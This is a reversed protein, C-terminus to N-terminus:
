CAEDPPAYELTASPVDQRSGKWSNHPRCAMRLKEDWGPEDMNIRGTVSEPDIHELDAAEIHVWEGGIHCYYYGAFNPPHLKIWERRLKAHYATAKVRMVEKAVGEM